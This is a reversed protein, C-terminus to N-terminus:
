KGHRETQASVPLLRCEHEEGSRYALNAREWPGGAPPYMFSAPLCANGVLGRPSLRLQYCHGPFVGVHMPLAAAQSAVIRAVALPRHRAGAQLM